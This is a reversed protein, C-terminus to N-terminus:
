GEFMDTGKPPVMVFTVTLSFLKPWVNGASTSTSRTPGPPCFAMRIDSTPPLSSMMPTISVSSSAAGALMVPANNVVPVNLGVLKSPFWGSGSVQGTGAGAGEPLESSETKLPM